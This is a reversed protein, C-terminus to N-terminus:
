QNTTKWCMVLHGVSVCRNVYLVFLISYKITKKGKPKPSGRVRCEIILDRDCGVSITSEPLHVFHASDDVTDGGCRPSIDFFRLSSRCDVTGHANTARCLYVGLDSVTVENVTLSYTSATNTARIKASSTLMKGDRM